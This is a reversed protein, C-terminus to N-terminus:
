EFHLRLGPLGLDQHPTAPGTLQWSVPVLKNKQVNVPRLAQKYLVQPVKTNIAFPISDHFNNFAKVLLQNTGAKLDLLVIHSTSDEKQRSNAIYVQLGNLFVQVAEGAVVEIVVKGGSSTNIEQFAFYATEMGAPLHYIKDNQYTGVASWDRGSTDPWKRALDINRINKPINDIGSYMPGNVHLSKFEPTSGAPLEFSDTPKLALQRVDDNLTLTVERGLEQRSYTLVPIVSKTSIPSLTWSEKVTSQFRTNYDIGSNSYSKFANSSQLVLGQDLKHVNAPPTSYGNAFQLAIVTFEKDVNFYNPLFVNIGDTAIKTKCSIGSALLYARTLKGKLGPLFIRNNKPAKM